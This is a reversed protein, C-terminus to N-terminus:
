SEIPPEEETPDVVVNHEDCIYGNPSEYWGFPIKPKPLDIRDNQFGYPCQSVKGCM